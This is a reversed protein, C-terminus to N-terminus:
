ASGGPLNPHPAAAAKLCKALKYYLNPNGRKSAPDANVTSIEEIGNHRVTIHIRENDQNYWISVRDLTITKKM